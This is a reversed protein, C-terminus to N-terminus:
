RALMHAIDGMEEAIERASQLRPTTLKRLEAAKRDIEGLHNSPM